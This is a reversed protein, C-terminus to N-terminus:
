DMLMSMETIPHRRPGKLSRFSEKHLGKLDEQLNSGLKGLGQLVTCPTTEKIETETNRSNM